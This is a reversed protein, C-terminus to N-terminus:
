EGSGEIHHAISGEKTVVRVVADRILPRLEDAQERKLKSISIVLRYSGDADQRIEGAVEAGLRM